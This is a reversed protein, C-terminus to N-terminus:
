FVSQLFGTEKWWLRLVSSLDEPDMTPVKNLLEHGTLVKLCPHGKVLTVQLSKPFKTRGSEGKEKGEAPMAGPEQSLDGWTPAQLVAPSM